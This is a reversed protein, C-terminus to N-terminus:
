RSGERHMGRRVLVDAAHVHLQVTNVYYGSLEFADAVFPNARPRHRLCQGPLTDLVWCFASLVGATSVALVGLNPSWAPRHSVPARDAHGTAPTVVTTRAM